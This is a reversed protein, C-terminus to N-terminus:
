SQVDADGIEDMRGKFDQPEEPAATKAVAGRPKGRPAKKAQTAGDHQGDAGLVASASVDAIPGDQPSREREAIEIATARIPYSVYPVHIKAPRTSSLHLSWRRKKWRSAKDFLWPEPPHLVADVVHLGQLPAAALNVTTITKGVGSGARRIRL